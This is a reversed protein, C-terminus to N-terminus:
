SNRGTLDYVRVSIAYSIMQLLLSLIFLIGIGAFVDSLSLTNVRSLVDLLAASSSFNKVAFYIIGACAIVCAFLVLTGKQHGFRFEFPLLVASIIYAIPLFLLVEAAFEPVAASSLAGNLYMLGLSCTIALIWCVSSVILNLVYKEGVYQKKTVPLTMLFPTSNDLEDYSFTSNGFITGFMVLYGIIFNGNATGGNMIIALALILFIYLKHQSLLCLDKIFLGKM